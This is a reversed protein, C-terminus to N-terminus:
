RKLEFSGRPKGAATEVEVWLKSGQPLTAPVEVHVDYDDGEAEGKAKASGEANETGVWARVARPKGSGGTVTLEVVAEEGPKLDGFRAAAVTYGGITQSGLEHKTGTHVDGQAGTKGGSPQTSPQTAPAPAPAHAVDEKCGAFAFVCTLLTASYLSQKM